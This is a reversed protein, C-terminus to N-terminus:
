CLVPDRATARRNQAQDDSRNTWKLSATTALVERSEFKCSRGWGWGWGGAGACVMEQTHGSLEEHM